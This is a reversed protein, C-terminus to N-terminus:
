AAARTSAAAPPDAPIAAVAGLPAANYAAPAPIGNAALVALLKQELEDLQALLADQRSELEQIERHTPLTPM